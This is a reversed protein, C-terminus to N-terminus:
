ASLRAGTEEVLGGAGWIVSRSFYVGLVLGYAEGNAGTTPVGCLGASYMTMQPLLRAAFPVLPGGCIQMAGGPEGKAHVQVM